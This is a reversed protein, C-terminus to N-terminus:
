PHPWPQEWSRCGCSAERVHGHQLQAEALSLAPARAPLEKRKRCPWYHLGLDGASLGYPTPIRKFNPQHWSHKCSCTLHLKHGGRSAYLAPTRPCRTGRPLSRRTQNSCLLKHCPQMTTTDRTTPFASLALLDWAQM